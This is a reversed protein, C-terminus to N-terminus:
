WSRKFYKKRYQGPTMGTFKRFTRTFHSQSCFGLYEGIEMLSYESYQLLSQAEKIRSKQIFGSVTQGTEKKFLASLYTESLGANEALEKLTIDYHLHQLIYDCSIQITESVSMDKRSERVKKAFDLVMRVYLDWLQGPMNCADADRIYIDSLTYAEEENLGGDMASRTTVAIGIIVAYLQQRFPNRSMQGINQTQAYRLIERLKEVEGGAVLAGIKKEKAYRSHVRLRERNLFLEEQYARENEENKM